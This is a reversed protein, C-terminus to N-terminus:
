SALAAVACGLLTLVALPQDLLNLTLTQMTVIVTCAQLRKEQGETQALSFTLKGQPQQMDM